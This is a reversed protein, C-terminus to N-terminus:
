IDKDNGNAMRKGGHLMGAVLNERHKWSAHLVGAVHIPVLMLLAWSSYLHLDMVWAIGWYRDTTSLWGSVSIVLLLTLLTLIMWAGLPNHGRYRPARGDLLKRGYALTARPGRVFSGFRASPSGVFGWILRLLVAVLVGYGLWEHWTGPTHRTLWAAGVGVIFCLHLVRM